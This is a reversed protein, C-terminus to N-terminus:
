HFTTSTSYLPVFQQSAIHASWSHCYRGSLSFHKGKVMKVSVVSLKKVYQYVYNIRALRMKLPWYYLNCLNTEIPPLLFNKLRLFLYHKIKIGMQAPQLTSGSYKQSNWNITHVFLRTDQWCNNNKLTMKSNVWRCHFWSWQFSQFCIKVFVSSLNGSLSSFVDQAVVSEIYQLMALHSSSSFWGM